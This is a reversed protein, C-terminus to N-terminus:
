YSTLLRENGNMICLIERVHGKFIEIKNIHCNTSDVSRDTMEVKEKVSRGIKIIKLLTKSSSREGQANNGRGHNRKLQDECELSKEASQFNNTKKRLKGTTTSLISLASEHKRTNDCFNVRINTV